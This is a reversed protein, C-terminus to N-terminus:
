SKAFFLAIQPQKSMDGIEQMTVYSVPTFPLCPILFKLMPLMFNFGIRYPDTGRDGYSLTLSVWVQTAQGIKISSSTWDAVHCVVLESSAYSKTYTAHVWM